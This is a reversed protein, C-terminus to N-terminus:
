AEPGDVLRPRLREELERNRHELNAVRNIDLAKDILVSRYRRLLRRGHPDPEAEIRADLDAEVEPRVVQEVFEDLTM